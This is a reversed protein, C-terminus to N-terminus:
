VFEKKLFKIMFRIIKSIKPTINRMKPPMPIKIGIRGVVGNTSKDAPHKEALGRTYLTM